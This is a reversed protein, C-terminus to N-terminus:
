SRRREASTNTTVARSTRSNPNSLDAAVVRPAHREVEQRAIVRVRLEDDATRDVQV